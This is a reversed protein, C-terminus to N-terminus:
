RVGLYPCTHCVLLDFLVQYTPHFPAVTGLHWKGVYATNYGSYKLAEAVTKEAPFLGGCSSPRLVHQVRTRRPERGTLLAARSPSCIAAGSHADVFSLGGKVIRSLTPMEASTLRSGPMGPMDAFGGDDIVVLVINPKSGAVNLTSSSPMYGLVLTALASPAAVWSTRPTQRDVM